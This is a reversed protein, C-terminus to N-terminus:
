FVLVRDNLPYIGRASPAARFRMPEFGLRSKGTKIFAVPARVLVNRALACGQSSGFQLGRKPYQRKQQKDCKGRGVQGAGM